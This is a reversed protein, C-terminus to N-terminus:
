DIASKLSAAVEEQNLIYGNRLGRSEAYGVGVIRPFTKGNEKMSEAVVVKIQYSGIDIGVSINKSMSFCNVGARVSRFKPGNPRSQCTAM